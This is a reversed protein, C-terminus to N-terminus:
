DHKVRNFCSVKHANTTDELVPQSERCVSQVNFCRDAFRCGSPFDGLKPVNGPISYLSKEKSGLRPIAKLLGYTYPHLCNCFLDDTSLEEIIQGGYMMVVRDCREHVVGLDHTILLVSMNMSEQLDSILDLIQAQITVDLATTPEDAILVDPECILAMAIMVRQRMGGSLMHPYDDIRKGPAPIGVRHLADLSKERIESASFNTHVKLVESIQDGITFVPNLSTMPEQFIMSIQQGRIKRLQRESCQLLDRGRYQIEGASIRGPKSILNLISLSTVSKGSGSEGVLGLTEGKRLEFSIDSVAPEFVGSVPFATTLNNVSLVVENM